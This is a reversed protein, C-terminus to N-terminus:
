SGFPSRHGSRCPSRWRRVGRRPSPPPPPRPARGRRKLPSRRCDSGRRRRCADAFSRPTACGSRASRCRRQPRTVWLVGQARRPVVRHRADTHAGGRSGQSSPPPASSEHRYRLPEHPSAARSRQSRDARRRGVRSGRLVPRRRPSRCCGASRRALPSRHDARPMRTSARRTCARGGRAVRRRRRRRRRFDQM